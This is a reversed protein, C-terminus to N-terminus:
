HKLLPANNTRPPGKTLSVPMTQIQPPRQNGTIEGGCCNSLCNGLPNQARQPSVCEGCDPLERHPHARVQSPMLGPAKLAPVSKGSRRGRKRGGRPGAQGGRQGRARGPAGGSARRGEARVRRRAPSCTVAPGADQEARTVRLLTTNGQGGPTEGPAGLGRSPASGRPRNRGRKWGKWWWGAWVSGPFVRRPRMYLLLCDPTRKKNHNISRSGRLPRPM